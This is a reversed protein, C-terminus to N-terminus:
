SRPQAFRRRAERMTSKVGRPSRSNRWSKAYTSITDSVMQHRKTDSVMCRQGRELRHHTDRIAEDETMLPGLPEPCSPAAASLQVFPDNFRNERKDDAGFASASAFAALALAFSRM